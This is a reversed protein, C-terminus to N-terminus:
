GVDEQSRWFVVERDILEFAFYVIAAFLTVILVTAYLDDIRLFNGSNAILFGLGFRSGLLEASLAAAVAFTVSTKLGTFLLPLAPPAEDGHGSSLARLPM